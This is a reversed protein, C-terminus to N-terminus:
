KKQNADPKRNTWVPKGDKMGPSDTRSRTTAATAQGPGFLETVGNDYASYQGESIQGAEKMKTLQERINEPTFGRVQAYHLMNQRAKEYDGGANELAKGTYLMSMADSSRGFNGEGASIVNGLGIVRGTVPDEYDLKIQGKGDKGFDTKTGDAQTGMYDADLVGHEQLYKRGQDRIMQYKDKSSGFYSLGLGALAGIAGGALTGVVPIASGIAAGAAAGGIAANSNRQGGAPSNGVMEATKYATYAGLVPNAYPVIAGASESNLAAGVNAAGAIGGIGAGLKDGQKYSQYANYLQLVGLGGQVANGSSDLFGGEANASTPAIAVTGDAGGSEVVEWGQPIAQGQGITVTGDLGSQAGQPIGGGATAGPVDSAALMGSNMPNPTPTAPANSGVNPATAQTTSQGLNAVGAKAGAVLGGFADKGTKYLDPALLKAGEITGITLAIPTIAETLGPTKKDAPLLGQNQYEEKLAKTDTYYKDYQPIYVYGPQEGYKLYNPGVPTKYKSPNQPGPAHPTTTM